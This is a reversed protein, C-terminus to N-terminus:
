CSFSSVILGQALIYTLMIVFNEHRIHKKYKGHILIYDSVAYFATGVVFLANVYTHNFILNYVSMMNNFLLPLGYVFGQVKLKGFYTWLSKYAVFIYFTVYLTILTSLYTLNLVPMLRSFIILYLFDSCWFSIVGYWFLKEYMLFADGLFALFISAILEKSRVQTSTYYLAFLIIMIFPKTTFRIKAKKFFCAYLHIISLVIYLYLINFNM